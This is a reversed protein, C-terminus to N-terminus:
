EELNVRLMAEIKEWDPLLVAAGSYPVRWGSAM